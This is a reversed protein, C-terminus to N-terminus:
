PRLIYENWLREMEPHPQIPLWILVILLVITTVLAALYRKRIDQLEKDRLCFAAELLNYSFHWGVALWLAKVKLVAIALLAGSLSLYIVGMWHSGLQRLSQYHLFGFFASTVAIAPYPGIGGILTQLPYGRNFLEEGIAGRFHLYAKSFDLISAKKFPNQGSLMWFITASVVVEVGGFTIGVVLEKWWSSYFHFGLSSLPRRDLHGTILLSVMLLVLTFVWPDLKITLKGSPSHQLGERRLFALLMSFIVSLVLTAVIFVLLKWGWWM